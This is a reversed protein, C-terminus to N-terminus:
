NKLSECAADKRIITATGETEPDSLQCNHRSRMITVHLYEAIEFENCGSKTITHSIETGRDSEPVAEDLIETVVDPRMYEAPKNSTLISGKPELLMRCATREPGYEVTLSIAPRVTFQQVDPEGYRSQLDIAKLPIAVIGNTRQETPTGCLGDHRVITSLDEDRHKRLHYSLAHTITVNQYQFVREEAAGVDAIIDDLLIGRESTPILDDVIKEVVEASMGVHKDSEKLISGKPEIKMECASRDTGYAATLFIDSSVAFREVESDGYREIFNSTKQSLCVTAFAVLFVANLFFHSM